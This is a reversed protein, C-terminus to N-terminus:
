LIEHCMDQAKSPPIFSNIYLDSHQFSLDGFKFM